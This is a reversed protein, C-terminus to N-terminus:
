NKNAYKMYKGVVVATIIVLYFQGMLGVLIAAKQATATAPLIEGYGITMLTIFSYYLISDSKEGITMSDTFFSSSFSGPVAIEIALFIFFSVLGLSIYGSMVGYILDKAVGKIAWIQKIIEYTIIVYLLFYFGFSLQTLTQNNQDFLLFGFLFGTILFLTSILLRVSRKEILNIGALVNLLWGLNTIYTTFFVDNFILASFLNFSITILFIEFRYTRLLTVLYKIV